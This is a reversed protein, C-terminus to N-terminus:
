SRRHSCDPRAQPASSTLWDMSRLVPSGAGPEGTENQLQTMYSKQLGRISASLGLAGSAAIGLPARCEHRKSTRFTKACYFPSAAYIGREQRASSPLKNRLHTFDANVRPEIAKLREAPPGGGGGLVWFGCGLVARGWGYLERCFVRIGHHQM